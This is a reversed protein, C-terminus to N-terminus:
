QLQEMVLQELQSDNWPKIQWWQTSSSSHKDGYISGYFTDVIDCVSSHIIPLFLTTFLFFNSDTYLRLVRHM